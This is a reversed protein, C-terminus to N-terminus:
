SQQVVKVDVSESYYGNSTGYWKVDVSGKLSRFTYFTWTFSEDYENQQAENSSDREEAVILIQGILDEWDGNVDDINVSECCDQRHYFTITIGNTMTFRIEDGDGGNMQEVNRVFRGQMAALVDKTSHSFFYSDKEEVMQELTKM